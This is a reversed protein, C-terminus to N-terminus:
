EGRKKLLVSLDPRQLAVTEDTGPTAPMVPATPPPPAPAPAPRAAPPAQGHGQAFPLAGGLLAERLAAGDAAIMTENTTDAAPQAFPVAGRRLAERIATGDAAIMTEGSQEPPPAAATRPALAPTANPDFPTSGRLLQERIARGDIMDTQDVDVAVQIRPAAVVQTRAPADAIPLAAAVSAAPDPGREANYAAKYRALNATEGRDVEVALLEIAEVELASWAESSLGSARLVAARDLGQDIKARVLAVREVDDSSLAM